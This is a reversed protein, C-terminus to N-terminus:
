PMRARSQLCQFVFQGAFDFSEQPLTQGVQTSKRFSYNYRQLFRYEWQLKTKNKKKKFSSQIKYIENVISWSTVPNFLKRNFEIFNILAEYIEPYARKPGLHLSIIKNKNPIKKYDNEKEVLLSVTSQSM